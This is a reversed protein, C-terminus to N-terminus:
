VAVELVMVAVAVKEVAEQDKGKSAERCENAVVAATSTERAAEASGAEEGGGVEWAEVEVGEAASAVVAQAAAEEGAAEEAVWGAQATTEEAVWGAVV